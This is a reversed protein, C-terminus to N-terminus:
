TLLASPGVHVASPISFFFIRPAGGVIMLGVETAGTLEALIETHRPYSFGALNIAEKNIPATVIAAISGGLAREVAEEVYVAQAAGTERSVKGPVFRGLPQPLPDLVPVVGDPAEFGSLDVSRVKLPAKLASVTKALVEPSGIVLPRCLRRVGPRALAKVIVEPGIGAPDGM